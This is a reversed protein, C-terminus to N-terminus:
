SNGLYKQPKQANQLFFIPLKTSINHVFQSSKTKALKEVSKQVVGGCKEVNKAIENIKLATKKGNKRNESIEM